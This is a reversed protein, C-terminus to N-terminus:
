RPLRRRAMYEVQRDLGVASAAVIGAIAAAKNAAELKGEVLGAGEPIAAANEAKTQEYLSLLAPLNTGNSATAEGRRMKLALENLRERLMRAYGTLFSTRYPANGGVGDLLRRATELLYVFILRATVANATRGIFQHTMTEDTHLSQYYTCFHANAVADAIFSRWDGAPTHVGLTIVDSETQEEIASMSLNHEALLAAAKAAALAAENANPSQALALLKRIKDVIANTERGTTM